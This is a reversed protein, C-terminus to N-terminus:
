SSHKGRVSFRLVTVDDLQPEQGKYPQFCEELLALQVDVPMEINDRLLRMFRLNGYPLGTDGGTQHSIGDSTLYFNMSSDLTITHNTYRYDM